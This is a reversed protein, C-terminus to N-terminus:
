SAVDKLQLLRRTGAALGFGVLYVLTATLLVHALLQLYDWFGPHDFNVKPVGMADLLFGLTGQSPLTVIFTGMGSLKIWSGVTYVLDNRVMFAAIALYIAALVYGTKSGLLTM